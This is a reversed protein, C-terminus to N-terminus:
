AARPGRASLLAESRGTSALPQDLIVFECVAYACPAQGEEDQRLSIIGGVGDHSHPEGVARGLYEGTASNFVRRGDWRSGPSEAMPRNEFPDERRDTTTTGRRDASVAAGILLLCAVTSFWFFAM